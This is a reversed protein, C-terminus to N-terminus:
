KKTTRKYKSLARGYRGDFINPSMKRGDADGSETELDSNATAVALVATAVALVTTAVFVVPTAMPLVATAVTMVLTQVAMVTIAWTKEECSGEDIGRSSVPAM